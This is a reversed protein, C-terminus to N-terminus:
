NRFKLTEFSAVKSLQLTGFNGLKLTGFELIAFVHCVNTEHKSIELRELYIRKELIMKTKWSNNQANSTDLTLFVQNRSDHAHGSPGFIM